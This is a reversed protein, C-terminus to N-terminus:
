LTDTYKGNKPQLDGMAIRILDILVWIGCGGLTIIMLIGELTYGLYFRHIGLGGIFFCLILAVLQSHGSGSSKKNNKELKKEIKKTIRKNLKETKEAQKVSIPSTIVNEHEQIQPTSHKVVLNQSHDNSSYLALNQNQENNTSVVEKTQVKALEVSQEKDIKSKNRDVKKRFSPLNVHVGKTYRRKQLISSTTNESTSCSTSFIAILTVIFTSSLIRKLNM